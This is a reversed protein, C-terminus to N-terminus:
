KTPEKYYNDSMSQGEDMFSAVYPPRLLAKQLDTKAYNSYHKIEDYLRWALFGPVFKYYLVRRLPSGQKMPKCGHMLNEPFIVLDGAAIDPCAMCQANYNGGLVNRFIDSGNGNNGQKHSGPIYCFGGQESKQETLFIGVTIHGSWVKEGFNYFFVSGQSQHRGGHINGLHYGQDVWNGNKASKIMGPQQIGVCHDLRFHDGVTRKAAQMLWSHTMLEVFFYDLEFFPFKYPSPDVGKLHATIVDNAHAVEDKSLFSNFKYLGVADMTYFHEETFPATATAFVHNTTEGSAKKVSLM